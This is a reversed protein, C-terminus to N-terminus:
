IYWHGLCRLVTRSHATVTVALSMCPFRVELPEGAHRVSMDPPQSLLDLDISTTVSQIPRFSAGPCSNLVAASTPPGPLSSPRPSKPWCGVRARSIAGDREQPTPKISRNCLYTRWPKEWSEGEQWRHVDVVGM